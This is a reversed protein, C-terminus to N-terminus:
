GQVWPVRRDPDCWIYRAPCQAAPAFELGDMHPMEVDLTIVDPVCEAIKKAAFFPDSATAMVELDPDSSIIQSLTQRVVASDDVILVKLKPQMGNMM